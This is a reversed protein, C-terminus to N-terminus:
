GHLHFESSCDEVDVLLDEDDADEGGDPSSAEKGNGADCTEPPPTDERRTADELHPSSTTMTEETEPHSARSAQFVQDDAADESSKAKGGSPPRVEGTEEPGTLLAQVSFAAARPSLM